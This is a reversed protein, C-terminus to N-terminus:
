DRKKEASRKEKAKKVREPSITLANIGLFNCIATIVLYAWRSYAVAAFAFYARLYWLEQDDDWTQLGLSPLNSILGGFLLPTLLVTWYPFPQRTLHALIIKTTMRGFVLSVTLSFLVLHNKRLLSSYPSGLWAVCGGTFLVMPTWELLLPLTPLNKAKRARRVNLVCEPVHAVLLTSLIFIVWIDKVSTTQDLYRAAWTGESPFMAQLFPPLHPYFPKSWIEPGYTGSTIMFLCAGILGETPGNFYGLYLTHTHYTEWTSFFMPLCPVMATFAGTRTAGFGM